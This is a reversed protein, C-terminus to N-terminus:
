GGGINVPDAGALALQADRLGELPDGLHGGAKARGGARGPQGHGVM